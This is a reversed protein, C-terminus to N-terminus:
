PVICHFCLSPEKSTENHEPTLTSCAPQQALNLETTSARQKATKNTKSVSLNMVYESESEFGYESESGFDSKHEADPQM